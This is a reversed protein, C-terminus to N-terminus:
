TTSTLRDLLAIYLQALQGITTLPDPRPTGDFGPHIPTIVQAHRETALMDAFGTVTQPGGGGHLVLFPHGEGRKTYSVPTTTGAIDLDNTQMLRDKNENM